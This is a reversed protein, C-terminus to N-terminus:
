TSKEVKCLPLSPHSSRGTYDVIVGLAIRGSMPYYYYRYYLRNNSTEPRIPSPEPGLRVRGPPPFQAFVQVCGEGVPPSASCSGTPTTWVGSGFHVSKAASLNHAVTPWVYAPKADPAPPDLSPQVTMEPVHARRPLCPSFQEGTWGLDLVLGNISLHWLPM